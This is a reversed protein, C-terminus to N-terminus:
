SSVDEWLNIRYDYRQYSRIIIQLDIATLVFSKSWNLFNRGGNSMTRLDQNELSISLFSRSKPFRRFARGLAPVTLASPTVPSFCRDAVFRADILRSV